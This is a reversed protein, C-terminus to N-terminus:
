DLKSKIQKILDELRGFDGEIRKLEAKGEKQDRAAAVDRLDFEIITVADTLFQHESLVQQPPTVPMLKDSEDQVEDAMATVTRRFTEGGAQDIPPIDDRFGLVKEAIPVATDRYEGTSSVDLTKASGRDAGKDDGGGCGAALLIAALGITLAKKVAALMRPDPCAGWRRAQSRRM